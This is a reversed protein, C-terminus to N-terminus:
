SREFPGDGFTHHFWLSRRQTWRSALRFWPHRPVGGYLFAATDCFSECVYDKWDSPTDCTLKRVGSSEGLEGRAGRVRESKLIETYEQRQRNALRPWVFHFVEHVLILPLLDPESLLSSELVIRRQRIFSAAYVATGTGRSPSLLKGQHRALDPRASIFVPGGDISPLGALIQEFQRAKSQLIQSLLLRM